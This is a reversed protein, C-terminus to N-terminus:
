ASDHTERIAKAVAKGFQSTTCSGGADPTSIGKSLLESVAAEIAEAAGSYDSAAKKMSLHRFMMAGSLILAVPNAVDRGAIDFASGHVPEFIAHEEGINASPAFGLGGVVQAAEDSLIDGYLNSTVIIDFAAPDRVLNMAAADVLMEDYSVGGFKSVTERCTRSFLGDTVKLVNSKHVCTVRKGRNRGAALKSAYEAVRATAKQTILRLALAGGEFEFEVGRYLDETNERVVVLDVNSCVSAVGPLNRAPRINAYLDLLQRLKVIVEAACQGVPAKLCADSSRIIELSREPLATGSANKVRDGADASELKVEFSFKDAVAEIIPYVARMVEPGIGDGEMIAINLPM